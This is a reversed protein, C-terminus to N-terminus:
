RAARRSGLEVLVIIGGQPGGHAATVRQDQDAETFTVFLGAKGACGTVLRGERKRLVALALLAEESGLKSVSPARCGLAARLVHPLCDALQPRHGLSNGLTLSRPSSLWRERLGARAIWV